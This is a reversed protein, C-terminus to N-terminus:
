FVFLCATSHNLITGNFSLFFVPKMGNTSIFTFLLLWVLSLYPFPLQSAVTLVKAWPSVSLCCSQQYFHTVFIVIGMHSYQRPATSYSGKPVTRALWASTSGCRRKMVAAKVNAPTSLMPCSAENISYWLEAWTRWCVLMEQVYACLLM